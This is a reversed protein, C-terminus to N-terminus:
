QKEERFRIKVLHHLIQKMRRDHDPSFDHADSETTDLMQEIGAYMLDLFERRELQLSTGDEFVIHLLGFRDFQIPQEEDLKLTGVTAIDIM